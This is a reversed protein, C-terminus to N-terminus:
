IDCNNYSLIRKILGSELASEPQLIVKKWNILIITM